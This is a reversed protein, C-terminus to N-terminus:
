IFDIVNMLKEGSTRSLIWDLFSTVRTNIGPYASACGVGSSIVGLLYMRSISTDAWLVPGGSDSQCSDRGTNFFIYKNFCYLVSKVMMVIWMYKGYAYTCIEEDTITNGQDVSACETNSIISLTAKLLVDSTPGSFETQGWGLVNYILTRNNDNNNNVIKETM